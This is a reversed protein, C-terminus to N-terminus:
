EHLIKSLDQAFTHSFAVAGSTNLHTFNRFYNTSRCLTDNTYDLFYVNKGVLARYKSKINEASLIMKYGEEYVPPIVLVVKIGKDRIENVTTIFRALVGEDYRSTFPKRPHTIEWKGNLPEFGSSTDKYRKALVIDTYFSKNM